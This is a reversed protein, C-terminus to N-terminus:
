QQLGHQLAADPNEYWDPKQQPEQKPKQAEMLQAIRREWAADREAIESRLSSVEETYRKTKQKEAHLAEHPVMKQGQQEGQETVDAQQEGGAQQGETVVQTATNEPTNEPAADGQGSLINDLDTMTAEQKHSLDCVGSSRRCGM